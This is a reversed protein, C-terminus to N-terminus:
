RSSENRFAVGPHEGVRSIRIDLPHFLIFRIPIKLEERAVIRREPLQDVGFPRAQITIQVPGHSLSPKGSLITQASAEIQNWEKQSLAARIFPTAHPMQKPPQSAWALPRGSQDKRVATEFRWLFVSGNGYGKMRKLLRARMKQITPNLFMEAPKFASYIPRGQAFCLDEIDQDGMPQGSLKFYLCFVDEMELPLPLLPRGHCYGSGLFLVVHMLSVFAAKRLVRRVM